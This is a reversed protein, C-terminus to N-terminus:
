PFDFCETSGGVQVYGVPASYYIAGNLLPLEGGHMMLVENEGVLCYKM